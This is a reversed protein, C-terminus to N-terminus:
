FCELYNIRTLKLPNEISLDHDFQTIKHKTKQRDDLM